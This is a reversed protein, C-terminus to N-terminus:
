WKRGTPFAAGGRGVLKSAVIEKMVGQPGLAIAHELAAYGGDRRYADLSEPDIRGIRKLIPGVGAPLPRGGGAAVFSRPKEGAQIVLAVPARECQGLCPSRRWTWDGGSRGFKAEAEACIREAGNIRCAIDDCIHIVNAPRPTLSLLHYFTAVGFVEAPPLMMRQCIYNLAGPPLWGFRSQVAHLVPLLLDRKSRVDALVSDVAAREAADAEPGHVRIDM